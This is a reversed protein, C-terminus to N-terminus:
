IFDLFSKGLFVEVRNGAAFVRALFFDFVFIYKFVHKKDHFKRLLLNCGFKLPLLLFVFYYLM